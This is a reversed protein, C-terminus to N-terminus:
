KELEELLEKNEKQLQEIEDLAKPWGQRAAAIFVGNPGGGVAQAGTLECISPGLEQHVLAPGVPQGLAIANWYIWPEETAEDCIRRAEAIEENTMKKV